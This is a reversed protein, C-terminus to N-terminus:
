WRQWRRGITRHKMTSKLSIIEKAIWKWWLCKRWKGSQSCQNQQYNLTKIRSVLHIVTQVTTCFPQLPREFLIRFSVISPAAVSFGRLRNVCFKAHTISDPVGSLMGFPMDIPEPPSGVFLHFTLPRHKKTQEDACSPTWGSSRNQRTIDWFAHKKFYQM